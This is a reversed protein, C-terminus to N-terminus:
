SKSVGSCLWICTSGDPAIEPWIPTLQVNGDSLVKDSWIASVSYFTGQEAWPTVTLPLQGNSNVSVSRQHLCSSM